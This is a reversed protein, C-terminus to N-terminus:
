KIIKRSIVIFKWLQDDLDAYVFSVSHLDQMPSGTTEV